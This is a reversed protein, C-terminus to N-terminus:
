AKVNEETTKTTVQLPVSFLAEWPSQISSIVAEAAGNSVFELIWTEEAMAVEDLFSLTLSTGEHTVEILNSMHQETMIAPIEPNGPMLWHMKDEIIVLASSTIVLGSMKLKVNRNEFRLTAFSFMALLRISDNERYHKSSKILNHMLSSCHEPVSFEVECSDLLRLDNLYFLLNSTRQFDQLVCLLTTNSSEEGLKMPQELEVLVGQKFPLPAFSRLRDVTWAVEKQLWRQPNELLIFVTLCSLSSVRLVLVIDEYEHEFVNLIIHLKVRHDVSSFDTYSYQVGNRLFEPEEEEKPPSCKNTGIKMSQLLGGLMSTLNSVPTIVTDKETVITDSLEAENNSKSQSKESTEVQKNTKNEYATCVSDTLSGSSSSETLGTMIPATDPITLLSPAVAIRREESSRKRSPTVNAKSGEDLVEISSQSPNSLVEIDSEYKKAVTSASPTSERSEDLSTASCCVQAQFHSDFHVPSTTVSIAGGETEGISSHSESHQLDTAAPVNLSQDKQQGAKIKGEFNEASRADPTTLEDTQIVLTSQCTPCKPAKNSSTITILCNDDDQSFHTSCKICQFVKLMIPRLRITEGLTQVIKKADELELYYTRNQRDKRTTDFVIDVSTEQGGGMDCSLVTNMAWRQKVERTMSDREKIYDPNIVLFLEEREHTNKKKQVLYLDGIEEEPDYNNEVEKPSIDPIEDITEDRNSDEQIESDNNNEKNNSVDNVKHESFQNDGSGFTDGILDKPTPSNLLNLSDSLHTPSVFASANVPTSAPTKPFTSTLMPRPSRELGMIDQVFTGAHSTLWDNEGFKERLALIQKKIELHDTLTEISSIPTSSEITKFEAIVAEKVNRKRRSRMVSKEVSKMLESSQSETMSANIISTEVSASTVDSTVSGSLSALDDRSVSRVSRIAFMRNQSVLQRESKSFPLNDLVFKRDSLSPHLRRITLIRHRPHYSLPNGDLAVWLLASMTELPWLVSHETLCNYSLDLETLCELGHLGNLNDIYNNKLILIQLTQFSAKNFIPVAELKNFGLNINKLSPLCNLETATSILNHSLDLTQLWPALELSKDLRALANYPLALHQLSAWVFGVGADGGCAALLRGISGVGRGGACVVSELQGRIGQIGRVLEICVKHLELYKLHRFKRIDISVKADNSNHTVKLGITKQVFDHLFKLDRFIDIKSSNCVQFSCELDESEDVILSFAENLDNLLTTSLSLKSTASLVKDGNQRLLRALDSIEQMSPMSQPNYSMASM